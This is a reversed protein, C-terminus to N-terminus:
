SFSSSSSSSKAFKCGEVKLRFSPRHEDRKVFREAHQRLEGAVARGVARERFKTKWFVNIGDAPQVRIGFPQQEQAVFRLPVFFQQVRAVRVFALIPRLNFFDRRASAQAFQLAAHHDLAPFRQRAARPQQLRLRRAFCPACIGGRVGGIRKRLRTGSQQIPKSSTSPLFRWTRRIVAAMPWGVNRNTRTRMPVIQSPSKGAPWHRTKVAASIGM